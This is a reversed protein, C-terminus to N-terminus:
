SQIDSKKTLKELVRLEEKSNPQLGEIINAVPVAEIKKNQDHAIKILDTL